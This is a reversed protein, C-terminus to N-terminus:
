DRTINEHRIRGHGKCKWCIYGELDVGEGKCAPCGIFADELSSYASYLKIEQGHKLRYKNSVLDIVKRYEDRLSVLEEALKEAILIHSWQRMCGDSQSCTYHGAV